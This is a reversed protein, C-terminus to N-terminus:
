ECSSFYYYKDGSIVHCRTAEGMASAMKASVETHGIDLTHLNHIAWSSKLASLGRDSLNGLSLDLVRLRNALPSRAIAEALANGNQCFPLRLCTLRPFSKGSLVPALSQLMAEADLDGRLWIELYELWDCRLSCIQTLHSVEIKNVKVILTKLNDHKMDEIESGAIANERDSSSAQPQPQFLVVDPQLWGRVHLVELNPFTALLPYCNSLVIPSRNIYREREYGYCCGLELGKLHPLNQYNNVITAVVAPFGHQCIPGKDVSYSHRDGLLCTVLEVKRDLGEIVVPFIPPELWLKEIEPIHSSISFGRSEVTVTNNLLYRGSPLRLMGNVDKKLYFYQWRRDLLCFTARSSGSHWLLWLATDQVRKSEDGLVELLLEIGADGYDIAKVLVDAKRDGELRDLTQKLGEIGGLIAAQTAPPTDNGLVADTPQPTLNSDTM